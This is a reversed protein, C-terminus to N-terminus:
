KRGSKSSCFGWGAPRDDIEREILIERAKLGEGGQGPVEIDGVEVGGGPDQAMFDETFLHLVLVVLKGIDPALLERHILGGDEILELHVQIGEDADAPGPSDRRHEHGLEAAVPGIGVGLDELGHLAKM